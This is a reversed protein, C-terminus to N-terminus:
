RAEDRARAKRQPSRIVKIILDGIFDDSGGSELEENRLLMLGQIVAGEEYEDLAVLKQKARM